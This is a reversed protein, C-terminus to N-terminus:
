EFIGETKRNLNQRSFEAILQRTQEIELEENQDFVLPELSDYWKLWQAISADDNDQSPADIDCNERPPMRSVFVVSGELWDVDEDPIARGDVWKARIM